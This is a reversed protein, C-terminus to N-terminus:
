QARRMDPGVDAVWQSCQAIRSWLRTDRYRAKLAAESLNTCVITKFGRRRRLDVLEFLAALMVAPDREVGLEDIVLLGRQVRLERYRDAREGFLQAHARETNAATAYLGDRELVAWIAALTKGRGTGGCLFLWSPAHELQLWTSVARISPGFDMDITGDILAQEDAAELPLHQAAILSARRDRIKREREARQRDEEARRREFCELTECGFYEHTVSDQLWKITTPSLDTLM